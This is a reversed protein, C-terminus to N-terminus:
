TLAGEERATGPVPASVPGARQTTTTDTRDPGPRGPGAAPRAGRRGRAARDARAARARGAGREPGGRAATGSAPRGRAGGPGGRASAARPPGQRRHPGAVPVDHVVNGAMMQFVRGCRQDNGIAPRRRERVAGVPRAPRAARGAAPRGTRADRGPGPEAGPAAASSVRSVCSAGRASSADSAATVMPRGGDDDGGHVAAVPSRPFCPVCPSLPIAPPPASAADCPRVGVSRGPGGGAFTRAPGHATVIAGGPLVAVSSIM